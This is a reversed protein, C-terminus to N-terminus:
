MTRNIYLALNMIQEKTMTWKLTNAYTSIVEVNEQTYGLEPVVRDLSPAYKTITTSFPVGMIPCIEPIVIDDLNLTFIIGLRTARSKARDYLKREQTLSRYQVKSKPKRCEKCVTNYGSTCSKHKHYNEWSKFNGCSTCLRGVENYRVPIVQVPLPKVEKQLM